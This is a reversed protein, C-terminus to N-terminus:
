SKDNLLDAITPNILDILDQTAIIVSKDLEGASVVIKPYNKIEQDFFIPYEPHHLFIGVPTNAGHPYGTTEMVYDMPPLGVKRNKSVTAMKKYDMRANLPVLAITPGTKNGKLVLTKFIPSQNTDVKESSFEYSQYPINQEELFTEVENKAM